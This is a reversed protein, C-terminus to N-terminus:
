GGYYNNSSAFKFKQLKLGNKSNNLFDITFTFTYGETQSTGFLYRIIKDTVRYFEHM